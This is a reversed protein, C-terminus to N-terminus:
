RFIEHPTLESIILGTDCQHQSQTQMGPGQTQAAAQIAGSSQSLGSHVAAESNVAAQLAEASPEGAEEALADVMAVLDPHHPFCQVLAVAAQWATLVRVVSYPGWFYQRFLQDEQTVCEQLQQTIHEVSHYRSGSETFSLCLSGSSSQLQQLLGQRRRAVYAMDTIYKRRSLFLISRQVDTYQVTHATQLWDPAPQVAQGAKPVACTLATRWEKYNKRARVARLCFFERLLQQLCCDSRTDMNQGTEMLCTAMQGIYGQRVEAMQALTLIAVQECAAQQVTSFSCTM